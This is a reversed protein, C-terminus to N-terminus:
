QTSPAAPQGATRDIIRDINERLRELGNDLHKEVDALIGRKLQERSIGKEEALQALSKGSGRLEQVLEVPTVGLTEAAAHLVLRQGVNLRAQGRLSTALPPLLSGQEIRQRLRDAVEPGVKGQEVAKDLMELETSQVAEKLQDVPVGLKAAVSSLFEEQRPQGQQNEPGAQALAHGAVGGLALVGVVLVGLAAKTWRNVAVGGEDNPPIM